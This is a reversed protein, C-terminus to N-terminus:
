GGASPTAAPQAVEPVARRRVIHRRKKIVRHVAVNKKKIVRRAAPLKPTAPLAESIAAIEISPEPEAANATPSTVPQDAAAVSAEPLAIATASISPIVEIAAPAAAAMVSPTDAAETTEVPTTSATPSLDAPSPPTERPETPATALTIAADIATAPVSSPADVRLMTLAPTVPESQQAFMPPPASRIKPTSVFRDHSARLLAAAGVGFVLMSMTLVVAAFLFRLGPLM